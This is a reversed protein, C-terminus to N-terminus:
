KRLAVKIHSLWQPWTVTLVDVKLGTDEKVFKEYRADHLGDKAWVPRTDYDVICMFDMDSKEHGQGRAVSGGLIVTGPLTKAIPRAQEIIPLSTAAMM